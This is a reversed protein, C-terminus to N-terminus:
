KPGRHRRKRRRVSLQALEQDSLAPEGKAPTSVGTTKHILQRTKYCSEQLGKAWAEIQLLEKTIGELLDADINITQKGKNM